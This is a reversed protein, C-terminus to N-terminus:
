NTFRNKNLFVYLENAIYKLSIKSYPQTLYVIKELSIIRILDNVFKKMFEDKSLFYIYQSFKIKNITLLIISDNLIM